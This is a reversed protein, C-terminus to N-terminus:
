GARAMTASGHAAAYAAPTRCLGGGLKWAPGLDPQPCAAAPRQGLSTSSDLVPTLLAGGGGPTFFPPRSAEVGQAVPGLNQDIVADLSCSAEITFVKQYM